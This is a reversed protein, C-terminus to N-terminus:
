SVCGTRRAEKPGAQDSSNNLMAVGVFGAYGIVNILVEMWAPMAFGEPFLLGFRRPKNGRSDSGPRWFRAASVSFGVPM